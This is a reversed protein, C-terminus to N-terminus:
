QNTDEDVDRGFPSSPPADSRVANHPIEGVQALRDGMYEMGEALRSCLRHYEELDVPEGNELKRELDHWEEHVHEGFFLKLSQSLQRRAIAEWEDRNPLQADDPNNLRPIETSM